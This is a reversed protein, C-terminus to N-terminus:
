DCQVWGDFLSMYEKSIDNLEFAVNLVTDINDIRTRGSKELHNIFLTLKESNVTDVAEYWYYSGNSITLLIFKCGCSWETDMGFTEWDYMAVWEDYLLTMDYVLKRHGSEDILSCWDYSEGAGNFGQGKLILNDYIDVHNRAWSDYACTIFLQGNNVALLFLAYSDDAQSYIDLNQFKLALIEKGSVTNFIAYSKEIQPPESFKFDSKEIASILQEYSLMDTTDFTYWSEGSEYDYIKCIYNLSDQFEADFMADVEGNLFHLYMETDSITEEEIFTETGSISQMDSITEESTIDVEKETEINEIASKRTPNNNEEKDVGCENTSISIRHIQSETLYTKQYYLTDNKDNIIFNKVREDTLTQVEKSDINVRKVRNSDDIDLFYVWSGCVIINSLNSSFLCTKQSGDLFVYNIDKIGEINNGTSFFIKGDSVDLLITSGSYLQKYMGGEDSVVYIGDETLNIGDFYLYNNYWILNNPPFMYDCIIKVEGSANIKVIYFYDVCGMLDNHHSLISYYHDDFVDPYCDIFDSGKINFGKSIVDVNEFVAGGVKVRRFANEFELDISKTYYIYGDSCQPCQVIDNDIQTMENREIDLLYLDYRWNENVATYYLQYDSIYILTIDKKGDLTFAYEDNIQKHDTCGILGLVVLAVILAIFKKTM